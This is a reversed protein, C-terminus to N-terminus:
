SNRAPPAPDDPLSDYARLTLFDALEPAEVLEEFLRRADDFRGRALRDAGVEEGIRAMEDAITERLRTLGLPAGGVDAGHHLWQWVQSRSIEATAADEMLDYLPVCGVGRLWAELYQVGVRINHRLGADTRAGEPVRLLDNATVSVDDRQRTVQNPAPMGEDFVARALAVLGPHAVWTGDHGDAVERRKDAAVRELAAANAAADHKIPIQAAMGGIAHAGRRHCTKVVLQTYARMCPQTMTVLSRDPLVAGAQARFVKIMSFIYDWRGCNLGASHTRLEYLIEDMEFAAPLTEILVTARITGTPLELSREAFDFVENWLRAELHNELKPLYLYVGTGRRVLERANHFFHLGFDVLAGPAARGGVVFHREPLHWGRPRVLLTATREALEYRKGTTEDEHRITRRVADALNRQGVVVNEWTPCTADELDAMFASAGSNLANILMKRDTPGTIEVRRDRLDHPPEAVTWPTERIERTGPLFGLRAGADLAAQREARRALLADRRHSFRRVLDAVFAVAEGSLVGEAGSPAAAVLPESPNM